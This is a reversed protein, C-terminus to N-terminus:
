SLEALLARADALDGTGAGEDFWDCVPALLERARQDQGRAAGLRAISTAARLEWLRAAQRRAIELSKLLWREPEAHSPSARRAVLLEGQLRCLEAEAFRECSRETWELAEELVRAAEDLRRDRILAEALAALHEARLLETRMSRNRALGERIQAMGEDTRGSGVAARGLHMKAFNELLPLGHERALADLRLAVAESAAYERRLALTRTAFSLAWALAFISGIQEAHSIGDNARTLAQDPYGLLCLTPSLHQLAASRGDHGYVHVVERDTDEDYLHLVEELKERARALEGRAWLSAGMYVLSFYRPVRASHREALASFELGLEYAAEHEGRLFHVSHIGRLIPFISPPDGLRACLDRAARYAAETEHAAQGETSALAAARTTQYQLAQGTREDDEPLDGLSDIANDLHAIAEAYASRAFAQQGARGWCAAAAVTMGARALHHGLMEPAAEVVQPYHKQLVSGIREHLTRRTSRLLSGYAADQVLAHKFTYRADPQTGRRFILNAAALEHLGALVEAEPRDAVAALLQFDFERGICAATQAIEKVDPIRDLRAMLSDHLSAPISSEGTELVAKTLEEVFLPVGDSRALIAEVTSTPLRDGGLRAVISAAGGRSLRNLALRTVHPHAALAPQEDPRSTVLMLVRAGEIRDLCHAIMELTTPDIWHGDELILLTPDREALGLMQQVLAELTRARQAQSSLALAGYRATADLDLLAAFLPAVSAVDDVARALLAELGELKAEASEDGAVDIARRLQQIVPWLASDRHYPSCQYRVRVHAEGAIADLLARGIRSKGIGAEGVLLVGQGEGAKALAWRELLLALEQDRGVMPLPAVRMAEFRSEVPREGVVASVRVPAEIGKLSQEGVDHLAFGLGLLRRTAEAVLVQGPAAIGQLRAALNPADGVVAEEQAAGEGILDGVVVLGSAIGVRAALADGDPGELAGVADVLALGARVAREAEDEHARPYGFYALVGDGMFRALFGEFRAIVGACVDQYRRIVRRTDEPDLRTALATSGVLDCFLVTLHRREADASRAPRPSPAAVPGIAAAADLLRKRHGLAQVGIEKLDDATLRSLMEPDVAHEEFASAYQGLGLSELWQRVETM